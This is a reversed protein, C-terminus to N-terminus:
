KQDAGPITRSGTVGISSAGPVANPLAVKQGEALAKKHTHMTLGMGSEQWETVSKMKHTACAYFLNGRTRLLAM